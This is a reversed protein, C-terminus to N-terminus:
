SLPLVTCSFRLSFAASSDRNSKSKMRSSLDATQQHRGRESERQTHEQESVCGQHERCLGSVSLSLRRLAWTMFSCEWLRNSCSAAAAAALLPMPAPAPAPTPAPAAAPRAMVPKVEPRNPPAPAAPLHQTTARLAACVGGQMVRAQQNNILRRAQCWAACDGVQPPPGLHATVRAAEGQLGLRARGWELAGSSANCQMRWTHGCVGSPLM